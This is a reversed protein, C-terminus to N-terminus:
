NMIQRPQNTMENVNKSGPLKADCSALTAFMAAALFTSLTRQIIKSKKM